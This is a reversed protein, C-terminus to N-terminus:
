DKASTEESPTDEDDTLIGREIFDESVYGLALEQLSEKTPIGESNWGKYEYYEDLLKAEYEPFRKRWHDEPVTEDKRRMGRGVNVARILNRNRRAIKWLEARDIDLGTAASVIQPLNHIHYPPKMPFSSLGSCLGLADDIYHM